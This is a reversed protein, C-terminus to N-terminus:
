PWNAPTAEDLVADGAYPVDASEVQACGYGSVWVESRCNHDFHIAYEPWSREGETYTGCKEVTGVAAVNRCHHRVIVRVRDGVKFATM